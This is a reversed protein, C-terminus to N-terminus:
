GCLKQKMEMTALDGKEMENLNSNKEKYQTKAVEQLLKRFYYPSSNRGIQCLIFWGGVGYIDEDIIKLDELKKFNRTQLIAQLRRRRFMPLIAALLRYMLKCTSAVFLLIFWFWFM